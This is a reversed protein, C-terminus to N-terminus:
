ILWGGDRAWQPHAHIREHCVRCTALFYTTDTLRANHRGNRHHIDTAGRSECVQCTPHDQLYGKRVQSYERLQTRRKESVRRLPTRKM